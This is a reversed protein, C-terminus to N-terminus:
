MFTLLENKNIKVASGIYYDYDDIKNKSEVFFTSNILREILSVENSDPPTVVSVLDDEQNKM